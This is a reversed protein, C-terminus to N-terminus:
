ESLNWRWVKNISVKKIKQTNWFVFLIKEKYIVSTKDILHSYNNLSIFINAHEINNSNNSKNKQKLTMTSFAILWTKESKVIQTM